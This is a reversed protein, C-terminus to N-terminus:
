LGRELRLDNLTKVKDVTWEDPGGCKQWNYGAVKLGRLAADSLALQEGQYIVKNNDGVTTCSIEPSRKLYLTTGEPLDIMSFRFARRKEFAETEAKEQTTEFEADDPLRVEKGGTLMLAARAAEAKMEFFERNAAIRHSDFAEHLLDEAKRDTPVEMAFFLKFPLPVGTSHLEKMRKAVDGNTLGIKIIGDRFAPNTLIYITEVKPEPAPPTVGAPASDVLPAAVPEPPKIEDM